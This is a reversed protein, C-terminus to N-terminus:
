DDGDAIAIRGVFALLVKGDPVGRFRKGDPEPVDVDGVGFMRGSGAADAFRGTGDVVTWTGRLTFGDPPGMSGGFLRSTVRQAVTLTDGEETTFVITGVSVPTGFVPETCQVLHYTVPGLQSMRGRGSSFFQWGDESLGPCEGDPIFPYPNIGHEGMVAGAMPTGEMATAPTVLVAVLVTMVVFIRIVRMM